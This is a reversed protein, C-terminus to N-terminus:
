LDGSLDSQARRQIRALRPSPSRRGRLRRSRGDADRFSGERRPQVGRCGPCSAGGARQRRPGIPRGSRGCGHSNPSLCNFRAERVGLLPPDNPSGYMLRTAIPYISRPFGPATSAKGSSSRRTIKSQCEGSSGSRSSGAQAMLQPMQAHHGFTDILWGATVDVGLKDRYYGKGYQMQRVFTEGGPMNVDPMVDLAGGIAAKGRGPIPPFRGGRRSVAGPVAARVCGPRAHVPLQAARALAADGQPYQAPGDGPVRRADQLRGGGLPHAPHGLVDRKRAELSRPAASAALLLCLRRDPLTLCM